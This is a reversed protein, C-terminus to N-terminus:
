LPLRELAAGIEVLAIALPRFAERDADTVQVQEPPVLRIEPRAPPAAEREKRAIVVLDAGGVLHVHASTILPPRSRGAALARSAWRKIWATVRSRGPGYYEYGRRVISFGQDRLANLYQKPWDIRHSEHPDPHRIERLRKVVSMTPDVFALTGGPKLLRNVEALLSAKDELHHSFEKCVVLDFSADAFPAYRGDAVIRKGPGLGPHKYLLGLSLSNPEFDCMWTDFGAEALLWAVWGSGSGLDLAKAGPGLDAVQEVDNILRVASPASERLFQLDRAVTEATGQWVREEEMFHQVADHEAAPYGMFVLGDEVPYSLRAQESELADAGASLPELTQQCRLQAFAADRDNM